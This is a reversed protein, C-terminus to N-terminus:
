WDEGRVVAIGYQGYRDLNEPDSDYVARLHREFRLSDVFRKFDVAKISAYPIGVQDLFEAALDALKEDKFTVIEIDMDPYKDHLYALRKLPVDHWQIHYTVVQVKKRWRTARLEPIVFALVGELVVIIRERYHAQLDGGQM